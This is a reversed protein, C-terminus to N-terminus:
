GDKRRCKDNFWISEMRYFQYFHSMTSTTKYTNAKMIPTSDFSNKYPGYFPVHTELRKFNDTFTKNLHRQDSIDRFHLAHLIKLNRKLCANKKLTKILGRELIKLKKTKRSKLLKMKFSLISHNLNARVTKRVLSNVSESTLLKLLFNSNYSSNRM